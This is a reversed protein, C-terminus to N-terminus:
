YSYKYQHVRTLINTSIVTGVLPVQRYNLMQSPERLKGSITCNFFVDFVGM